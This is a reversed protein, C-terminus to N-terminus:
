CVGESFLFLLFTFVVVFLSLFSTQLLAKNFPMVFLTCRVDYRATTNSVNHKNKSRYIVSM